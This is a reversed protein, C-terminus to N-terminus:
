DPSLKTARRNPSRHCISRRPPRRLCRSRSSSCPSGARDTVITRLAEHRAVIGNLAARLAAVDLPGRVRMARPINYAGTDPALKELFWLRQQGYVAAGARDFHAPSRREGTRAARRAPSSGLLKRELAARQELALRRRARTRRERRLGRGRRRRTTRTRWSPPWPRASRPRRPKSRQRNSCGGCRFSSPSADRIRSIVRTALLSHGGLEFFNDLVGVRPVRWLDRDLDRRGDGRHPYAARRVPGRMSARAIRCPCPGRDLKGNANLPLADILVIAAAGHVRAAEGPSRRSSRSGVSQGQRAVVYAVLRKNGPTDERAIVANQGVAPHGGLVTEIEGLEIRFGRLKVQQDVRGMLVINGDPLYRARDGTRYM